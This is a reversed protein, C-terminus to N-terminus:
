SVRDPLPKLHRDAWLQLALLNWLGRELNYQGSRHAEYYRLLGARDFYGSPFPDRDLLLPQVLPRLDTRLWRRMPVTFGRKPVPISEPKVHRALARRLVMKGVNGDITASPEVAQALDVIDLDLLPVRM